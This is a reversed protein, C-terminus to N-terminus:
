TTNDSFSPCQCTPVLSKLSLIFCERQRRVLSTSPAVPKSLPHPPTPLPLFGNERALYGEEEGKNGHDWYPSAHTKKPPHGSVWILPATVLSVRAYIAPMLVNTKKCSVIANIVIIKRCLKACNLTIMYQWPLGPWLWFFTFSILIQKCQQNIYGLSTKKELKICTWLIWGAQQLPHLDVIWSCLSKLSELRLPLIEMILIKRGWLLATQGWHLMQLVVHIRVECSTDNVRITPCGM